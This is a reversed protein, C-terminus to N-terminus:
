NCLMLNHPMYFKTLAIQFLYKQIRIQSHFFLYMSMTNSIRHGAAFINRLCHSCITVKVILMLFPVSWGGGGGGM